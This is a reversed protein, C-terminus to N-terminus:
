SGPALNLAAVVDQWSVFNLNQNAESGDSAV